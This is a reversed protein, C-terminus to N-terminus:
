RATPPEWLRQELRLKVAPWDQDTIAYWVTDRVRGGQTVQYRRFIGEERAGLRRMAERSRTNLVDTKLQVRHCTWAEFAHCLMLYKAETNVASRQWPPAVWTWGIEVHRNVGDLDAFRSSGVVKGSARHITAYPVARGEAAAALATDFWRRLGAPTDSRDITWRWLEPDLGVALIGAWHQEGLPELRVVKGELHPTTFGPANM